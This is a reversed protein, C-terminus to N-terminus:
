ITTHGARVRAAETDRSRRESAMEAHLASMRQKHLGVAAAKSTEVSLSLRELDRWGRQLRRQILPAPRGSAAVIEAVTM